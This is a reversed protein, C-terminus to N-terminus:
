PPPLLLLENQLLKATDQPSVKDYIVRNIARVLATGAEDSSHQYYNVQYDDFTDIFCNMWPNQRLTAQYGPSDLFAKSPQIVGVHDFWWLHQESEEKKGLIFALFEQALKQQEPDRNANIVWGFSYLINKYTSQDEPDVVPHPAVGFRVDPNTALIASPYWPGATVMAVRGNSFDSFWDTIFYPDYAHYTHKFDYFLQFAKIMADSQGAPKGELFLDDQGYQRMVPYFDQIYWESAPYNAFFGFQYGMKTPANSAADTELLQQSIEAITQWSVPKDEPLYPIGADDFMTKNYFLCLTTVENPLAFIEGDKLFVTLSNSPYDNVIEEVSGYGFIEPDLPALLGAEIYKVETFNSSAMAWVDPGGGSSVEALLKTDYSVISGSYPFVEYKVKVGPHSAEFEPIWKDKLGGSFTSYEHTWLVLVREKQAIVTEQPTPSTETAARCSSFLMSIVVSACILLFRKM